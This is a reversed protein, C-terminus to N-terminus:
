EPFHITGQLWIIGKFRRGVEPEGMLDKENICIDFLMENAEIIMLWIYEGTFPNRYKLQDRIDGIIAYHDSGLGNPAFSSDVMSLIDEHKRVLSGITTYTDMDSLTVYEMADQNGYKAEAIWEMRGKWLRRSRNEESKTKSLPMIIKGETSMGGLSVAVNKMSFNDRNKTKLYPIVNQLYFIIAVGVRLDDYAGAYAEKDVHRELTVDAYTTIQNGKFFPVYYDAYFHNEEDYEGRICIGMNDSIYFNYEALMVDDELSTYAIEQAEEQVFYLLKNIDKIRKLESFGIARLYKHM